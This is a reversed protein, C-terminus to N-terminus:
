LLAVGPDAPAARRAWPVAGYLHRRPGPTAVMRRDPAWVAAGPGWTAVTGGSDGPVRGVVWPGPRTKPAGGRISAGPAKGRGAALGDIAIAAAAGRWPAGEPLARDGLYIVSTRPISTRSLAGGM